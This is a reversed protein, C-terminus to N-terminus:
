IGAGQPALRESVAVALRTAKGIGLVMVARSPPFRESRLGIAATAVALVTLSIGFVFFLTENM